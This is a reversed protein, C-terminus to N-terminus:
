VLRQSHNQEEKVTNICDGLNIDEACVLLQITGNLELGIQCEQVGCRYVQDWLRLGELLTVKEM